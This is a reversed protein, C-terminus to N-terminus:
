PQLRKQAEELQRLNIGDVYEMIFYYFDGAKGFDYVAVISPHNLRALARAERNFRDAFAQTGSLKPSLIKLAVFRDLQPQRAKYVMGMGGEGLLEIVELQPFCKAIEEPSPATSEERQGAPDPGCATSALGAKLLCKPCLGEPASEALPAGCGGCIRLTDM